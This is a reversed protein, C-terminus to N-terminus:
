QIKIERAKMEDTKPLTITLVGDEFSAHIGEVNIGDGINFERYYRKRGIESYLLNMSEDATISSQVVLKRPEVQLKISEKTAGPLDLKVVFSDATEYIDTVPPVVRENMEYRTLATPTYPVLATM